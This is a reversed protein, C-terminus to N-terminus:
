DGRMLRKALCEYREIEQANLPKQIADLSAEFERLRGEAVSCDMARRLPGYSMNLVLFGIAVLCCVRAVIPSGEQFLVALFASFCAVATFMHSLLLRDSARVMASNAAVIVVAKLRGLREVDTKPPGQPPIPRTLVIM